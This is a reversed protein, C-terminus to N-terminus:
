SGILLLLALFSLPLIMTSIFIIYSALRLGTKRYLYAGFGIDIVVAFITFLPLLLLRESPSPEFASGPLFYGLLITERTPIILATTILLALSLIIGSLIVIRSLRDKLLTTVLFEARSSHAQMPQISGMESFERFSALFGKLNAPSIIFIRSTTAILLLSQKDSALYEIQGLGEVSVIGVLNGPLFFRPLPIGYGIEDPQRIWEIEVMPIDETRLGWQLHLGDRDLVYKARLLSLLRYLIVPIPIFLLLSVILFTYFLSRLQQNFAIILVACLGAIFLLLIGIHLLVGKQRLPRFERAQDM